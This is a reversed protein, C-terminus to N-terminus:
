SAKDCDPFWEKRDPHGSSGFGPYDPAILYYEDALHRILNRYQHSSSPYGHLLVIAPHDPNGAERFFVDIGQVTEVGYRTDALSATSTSTNM